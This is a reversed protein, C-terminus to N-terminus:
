LITNIRMKKEETKGSEEGTSQLVRLLGEFSKNPCRLSRTKSSTPREFKHIFDIVQLEPSLTDTKLKKAPDAQDEFGAAPQDRARSLNKTSLQLKIEQNICQSEAIKGLFYNDIESRDSITVNDVGYESIKNLYDSVHGM